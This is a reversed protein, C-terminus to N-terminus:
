EKANTVPPRPALAPVPLMVWATMGLALKGDPNPVRVRIASIKFRFRPSEIAIIRRRCSRRPMEASTNIRGLRFLAAHPVDIPTGGSGLFPPTRRRYGMGDFEKRTAAEAKLKKIKVLNELEQKGM